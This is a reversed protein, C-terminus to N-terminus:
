WCNLTSFFFIGAIKIPMRAPVTVLRTQTNKSQLSNEKFWWIVTEKNGLDMVVAIPKTRDSCFPPMGASVETTIMKVPMKPFRVPAAMHLNNFSVSGILLPTAKPVAEWTIAVGFAACIWGTAPATLLRERVIAPIKVPNKNGITQEKRYSKQRKQGGSFGEM